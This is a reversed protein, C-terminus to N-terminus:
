NTRINLRQFFSRGMDRVAKADRNGSSAAQARCRNSFRQGLPKTQGFHWAVFAHVNSVLAKVKSHAPQPRWVETVAPVIKVATVQRQQGSELRDISDGAVRVSDRRQLELRLESEAGVLGCPQHQLLQAAGHDIWISAKQFVDDFDVFAVNGIAGIAGGNETVAERGILTPGFLYQISHIM